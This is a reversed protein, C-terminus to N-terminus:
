NGWRKRHQAFYEHSRTKSSWDRFIRNDLNNIAYKSEAGSTLRGTVKITGQSNVIVMGQEFLEDCGFKCALMAIAPIDRREEETCDSRRKIHAAVLFREDFIRDCLACRAEGARLLQQRIYRQETRAVAKYPRDTADFERVVRDTAEASPVPPPELGLNEIYDIVLKSRSEDLVAFERYPLKGGDLAARLEGYTIDVDFPQNFAYMFDWSMWQGNQTKKKEWLMDALSANRFKHTVRSLKTVRNDGIFLVVDGSKIRNWRTEMQGREGRTTGWVPVTGSPHAAELIVQDASELHQSTERLSIPNSVTRDYNRQGLINGYPQMIVHVM